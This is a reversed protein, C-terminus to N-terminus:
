PWKRKGQLNNSPFYGGSFGLSVVLAKGPGSAICPASSIHLISIRVTLCIRVCKVTTHKCVKSYQSEEQSLLIEGQGKRESSLASLKPYSWFWLKSSSYIFM